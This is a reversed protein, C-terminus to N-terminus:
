SSDHNQTRSLLYSWVKEHKLTEKSAGEADGTKRKQKMKLYRLIFALVDLIIYFSM